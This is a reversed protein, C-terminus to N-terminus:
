KEGQIQSKLEQLEERRFMWYKKDYSLKKKWKEIIELIEKKTQEWEKYVQLQAKNFLTLLEGSDFILHEEWDPEILKIKKEWKKSAKVYKKNEIDLEADDKCRDDYDSINDIDLNEREIEQIKETPKM